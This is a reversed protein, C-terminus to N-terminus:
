LDTSNVYCIAFFGYNSLSVELIPSPTQYASVRLLNLYPDPLYFLCSMM